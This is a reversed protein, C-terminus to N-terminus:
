LIVNKGALAAEVVDQFPYEGLVVLPVDLGLEVAAAQSELEESEWHHHVREVRLVVVRGADRPDGSRNAQHATVAPM